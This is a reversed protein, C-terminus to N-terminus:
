WKIDFDDKKKIKKGQVDEFKPLIIREAVSGLSEDGVRNRELIEVIRKPMRVPLSNQKM